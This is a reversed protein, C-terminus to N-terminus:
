KKMRDRWRWKLALGGLMGLSQVSRNVAVSYIIDSGILFELTILLTRGLQQRFENYAVSRNTARFADHLFRALALSIGVLLLLIGAAEVSVAAIEFFRKPDPM